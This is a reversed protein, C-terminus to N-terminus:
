EDLEYTTAKAAETIARFEEESMSRSIYNIPNVPRGRYIVEYHLHPGTSRGTSGVEGIQEGRKVLQGPEVLVKSLHAYRTRYGFGHDIVVQKGYGSQPKQYAVLGTGTAYVPTGHPAGLDIGEHGIYRKLIPHLRMGFAGISGRLKKQDIPMIAPVVEAMLDKDVALQELEDYSMSQLYLQRGLADMKKWVQTMLPAYRGYGVSAYKDHSYPTYIGPINLTDASFIARYVAHDRERLEALQALSADVREGLLQYDRVIAENQERLRHMKPTYFFYSFVFNVVSAAIFVVLVMRVFRFLWQRLPLVFRERFFHYLTYYSSQPSDM